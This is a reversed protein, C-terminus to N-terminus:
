FVGECKGNVCKCSIPAACFCKGGTSWPLNNKKYCGCNCDGSKGFVICDDDDDVCDKSGSINIKNYVIVLVILILLTAFIIKKM